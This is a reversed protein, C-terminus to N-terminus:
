VTTKESSDFVHVALPPGVVGSNKFIEQMKESKLTDMFKNLNELSDWELLVSVVNPDEVDRFVYGGKSGAAKRHNEAGDEFSKKWTEYDQVKQRILAHAM